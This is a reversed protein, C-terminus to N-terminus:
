LFVNVFDWQIRNKKKKGEFHKSAAVIPNNRLGIKFEKHAM